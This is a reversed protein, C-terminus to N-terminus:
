SQPVALMKLVGSYFLCRSSRRCLLDSFSQISSSKSLSRASRSEDPPLLRVTPEMPAQGDSTSADRADDGADDGADDSYLAGSSSGM